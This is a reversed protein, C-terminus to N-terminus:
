GNSGIAAGAEFPGFVGEAVVIACVDRAMGM